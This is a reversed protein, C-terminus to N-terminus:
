FGNRFEMYEQYVSLDFCTPTKMEWLVRLAYNAPESLKESLDM